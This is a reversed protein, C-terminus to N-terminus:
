LQDKNWPKSDRMRFKQVSLRMELFVRVGMGQGIGSHIIFILLYFLAYFGKLNYEFANRKNKNSFCFEIFDHPTFIHEQILIGLLVWCVFLSLGQPLRCAMKLPQFFLRKWCGPIESYPNSLNPCTVCYTVAGLTVKRMPSPKLVQLHRRKLNNCYILCYDLLTRKRQNNETIDNYWKLKREQLDKSPVYKSEYPSKRYCWLYGGFFILAHEQAYFFVTKKVIFISKLTFLNVRCQGTSLHTASCSSAFSCVEQRVFVQKKAFSFLCSLQLSKYFSITGEIYFLHKM